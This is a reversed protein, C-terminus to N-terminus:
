LPIIQWSFESNSLYLIDTLGTNKFTLKFSYSGAEYETIIPGSSMHQTKWAYGNGGTGFVFVNETGGVINRKLYIAGSTAECTLCYNAWISGRIYFIIQSRSALNINATFNPMDVEPGNEASEINGIPQTIKQFKYPSGWSVASGGGNSVMIQGPAGTNGMVAMAGNPKFAFRENFTGAADYGIAVDANPNDAFIQLRNGDMGFGADGLTGPYLTIKKGLSAAFALPANPNNNGIGVRSNLANYTFGWGAPGGYFGLNQNNQVGMFGLLATNDAKYLWIGAGYAQNPPTGTGNRMTMRGTLDLAIDGTNIIRMREVFGGSRGYGFGINAASADSYFQLLGSQVGIGYHNGNGDGWLVLKNGLQSAFSLPGTPNNTGIGVNQCYSISFALIGVSFGLYKKM